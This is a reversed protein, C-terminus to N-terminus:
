KSPVMHACQDIFEKQIDQKVCNYSIFMLVKIHERNGHQQHPVVVKASKCKTKSGDCSPGQAGRLQRVHSSAKAQSNSRGHM